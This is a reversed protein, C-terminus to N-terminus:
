KHVMIFYLVSRKTIEQAMVRLAEGPGARYGELIDPFIPPHERRQYFHSM